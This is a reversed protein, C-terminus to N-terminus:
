QQAESLVRIREEPTLYLKTQAMTPLLDELVDMAYRVNTYDVLEEDQNRVLGILAQMRKVVDHEHMTQTPEIVIKGDKVHKIM